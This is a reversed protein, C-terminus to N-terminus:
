IPSFVEKPIQPTLQLLYFYSFGSIISIFNEKDYKNSTM